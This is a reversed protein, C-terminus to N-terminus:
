IVVKRMVTSGLITEAVFGFQEFLRKKLATRNNAEIRIESCGSAKAIEDCDAFTARIVDLNQHPRFPASGGLAEVWLARAGTDRTV